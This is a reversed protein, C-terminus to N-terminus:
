KQNIYDPVEYIANEPAMEEYNDQENEHVDKEPAIEEYNEQENEHVDKEPAMEEYNDQENEHVDKDLREATGATSALSKHNKQTVGADPPAPPCPTYM